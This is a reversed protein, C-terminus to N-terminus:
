WSVEIKYAPISKEDLAHAVLSLLLRNRHPILESASDFGTGGSSDIGLFLNGTAM